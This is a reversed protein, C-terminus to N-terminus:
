GAFHYLRLLRNQVPDYAISIDVWLPNLREVTDQVVVVQQSKRGALANGEPGVDVEDKFSVVQLKRRWGRHRPHAHDEQVVLINVQLAYDAPPDLLVAVLECAGGFYQLGDLPQRLLVLWFDNGGGPHAQHPRDEALEGGDGAVVVELLLQEFPQGAVVCVLYATFSQLLNAPLLAISIVGKTEIDVSILTHGVLILGSSNLKPASANEKRLLQLPIQIDDLGPQLPALV